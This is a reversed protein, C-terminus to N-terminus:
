QTLAANENSLEEVRAKLKVIEAQFKQVGEAILAKVKAEQAPTLNTM